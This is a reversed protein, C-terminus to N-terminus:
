SSWWEIYRWEIVYYWWRQVRTMDDSLMAIKSREEESSHGSCLDETFFRDKEGRTARFSSRKASDVNKRRRLAKSFPNDDKRRELQGSFRDITSEENSHEFDVIIMLWTESESSFWLNDRAKAWDWGDLRARARFDFTIERERRESESKARSDLNKELIMNWSSSSTNSSMFTTFEYSLDAAHFDCDFLKFFICLHSFIFIDSSKFV